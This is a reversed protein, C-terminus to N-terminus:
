PDLRRRGKRYRRMYAFFHPDWRTVAACVVHLLIGVLLLRYQHLIACYGAVSVWLAVAFKDPLGATLMPETLSRHLPAHGYPLQPEGGDASV